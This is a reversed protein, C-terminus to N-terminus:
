PIVQIAGFMISPHFGCQFGYTGKNPVAFSVAGGDADASQSPIPTPTDGGAPVLPHSAFSGAFTINSGVKAKVCHNVYQAPAATTPFSIDAGGFSTFDGGGAGAKQDFEAQTCRIAVAMSTDAQGSDAVSSDRDPIPGDSGTASDGGADSSTATSKTDSSCAYLAVPVITLSALVFAIRRM